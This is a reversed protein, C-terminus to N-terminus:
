GGVTKDVERVREEVQKPGLLRTPNLKVHIGAVGAKEYEYISLTIDMTADLKATIKLGPAMRQWREELAKINIHKGVGIDKLPVLPPATGAELYFSGASYRLRRTGKAFEIGQGPAMELTLKRVIADANPLKLTTALYERFSDEDDFQKLPKWEAM